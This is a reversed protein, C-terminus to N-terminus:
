KKPPLFGFFGAGDTKEKRQLSKKMIQPISSVASNTSSAWRFIVPDGEYEPALNMKKVAPLAALFRFGALRLWRISDKWSLRAM